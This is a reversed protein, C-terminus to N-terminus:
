TPGVKLTPRTVGFWSYKPRLYTCNEDKYDLHSSNIIDRIVNCTYFKDKAFDNQPPGGEKMALMHWVLSCM